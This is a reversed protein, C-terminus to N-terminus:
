PQHQVTVQVSSAGSPCQANGKMIIFNQNELSELVHSYSNPHESNEITGNANYDYSYRCVKNDDKTNGITIGTLTSRGSWFRQLPNADARGNIVCTYTIFGSYTKTSAGSDDYCTDLLGEGAVMAWSLDIPSNLSAPAQSDVSIYGTVLYATIDSCVWNSSVLDCKQTLLGTVNNFVLRFSDSAGPPTFASTGNGLDIAPVPVNLDRNKPRRIPTGAPPIALGLSASPDSGSIVTSLTAVQAVNRRDTWQVNVAVSKYPVNAAADTVTWAVTYTANTGTVTQTGTAINGYGWRGAAIQAGTASALQMYSRLEEIRRQGLFTAESVQKALDSENQLGIQLRAVAILGFGGIALAILAELLTFGGLALRRALRARRGSAYERKM